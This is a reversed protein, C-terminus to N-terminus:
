PLLGLQGRVHGGAELGQVVVVDCGAEAAAVAEERSGAQWCALAGGQHAIEILGPEPDGYFFEVIRARRAAEVVADRDVFPMVFNVGFVGTSRRSMDDLTVALGPAPIFAGGLMGVAGAEAVAVALGPSAAGGMGAQQLPIRCGLLDTLRTRLMHVGM